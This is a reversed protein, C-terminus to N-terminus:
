VRFLEVHNWFARHHLKVLVRGVFVDNKRAHISLNDKILQKNSHVAPWLYASLDAVAGEFEVPDEVKVDGDHDEGGAVGVVHADDFVFLASSVVGGDGLCGVM